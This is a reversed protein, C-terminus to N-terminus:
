DSMGLLSPMTRLSTRTKLCVTFPTLRRVLTSFLSGQTTHIPSPLSFQNNDPMLGNIWVLVENGKTKSQMNSHFVSLVFPVPIWAYLAIPRM